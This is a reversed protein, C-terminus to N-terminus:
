VDNNFRERLEATVRKIIKSIEGQSKGTVATTEKQTKGELFILKFVLQDDGTLEGVLEEASMPAPDAEPDTTTKAILVNELGVTSRTHIKEKRRYDGLGKKFDRIVNRCVPWVWKNFDKDTVAGQKDRSEFLKMLVLNQLDDLDAGKVGSTNTIKWALDDLQEDSLM